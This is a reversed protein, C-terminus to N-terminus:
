EAPEYTEPLEPVQYQRRYIQMATDPDGSLEILAGAVFMQSLPEAAQWKCAANSVVRPMERGEAAERLIAEAGYALLPIAALLVMIMVMSCLFKLVSSKQQRMTGGETLM